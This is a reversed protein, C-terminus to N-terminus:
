PTDGEKFPLQKSLEFITEKIYIKEEEIYRSIAEEFSPNKLKHASHTRIPRFGRSIKHEGQAGAEFVKLGRQICYEIGQYYCLEFHLNAVEQKCGWYRGYLRENGFFFLSGAISREGDKAEVYLINEKMTRFVGLFFDEKLYDISGKVGMTALYFQYMERAHTETLEDGSWRNIVLQPFHRENRVNKAKKTKMKLLYDEFHRFGENFFHYQTSERILYGQGQFLPIEEPRIFLFHSSSFENQEYIQQYTALVQTLHDGMFHATTAPTFPIMSTLKPYYPIKYSQYARAWEWDFIYEGYSHSKIFTFLMSRQLEDIIFLPSWGAKPGISGSEELALFFERRLFPEGAPLFSSWLEPSVESVKKFILM